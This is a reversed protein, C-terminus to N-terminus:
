PFEQSHSVDARWREHGNIVVRVLLAGHSKAYQVIDNVLGDISEEALGYDRIWATTGHNGDTLWRVLREPWPSHLGSLLSSSNKLEKVGSESSRTASAYLTHLASQASGIRPAAGSASVNEGQLLYGSMTVNLIPSSAGGQWQRVRELGGRGLQSLSAQATLQWPLLFGDVDQGAPDVFSKREDAKDEKVVSITEDSKTANSGAIRNRDSAHEDELSKKFDEQRDDPKKVRASPHDAVPNAEFREIM